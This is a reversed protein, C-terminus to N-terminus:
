KNGDNDTKLLVESRSKSFFDYSVEIGSSNKKKRCQKSTRSVLGVKGLGEVVTMTNAQIYISVNPNTPM